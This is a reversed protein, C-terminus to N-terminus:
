LLELRLTAAWTQIAPDVGTDLWESVVVFVPGAEVPGVLGLSPEGCLPVGDCTQRVELHYQPTGDPDNVLSVAMTGGGTVDVQVIFEVASPPSICLAAGFDVPSMAPVPIAVEVFPMMPSLTVTFPGDCTGDGCGADATHVCGTSAECTDLTCPTGDDCDVTAGAVCEGGLCSAGLACAGGDCSAGDALATHACAGDECDDATCPDSDDCNACPDPQFDGDPALRAVRRIADEASWYVWGHDVAIGWGGQQGEALVVLDGGAATAAVITGAGKNIWYVHGGAAAIRWPGGQDVALVSVNSGDHSASLVQGSVDDTWYIRADTVALGVPFDGTAFVTEPPSSGDLASRRVVGQYKDTWYAHTHDVAVIEPWGPLTSLTVVDGGAKSRGAVIGDTQTVWYVHTDSLVVGRPDGATAVFVQSEGGALDVRGIAKGQFDAWYAGDDDVALELPSSAGTALVDVDGGATAVRSVTGDDSDVWYVFDGHVAIGKPDTLGEALTTPACLGDVCASGLCSHSCVGCHDPDTLLDAECAQNDVDKEDLSSDSSSATSDAEPSNESATVTDTDTDAVPGTDTATDAVPGTDTDTVTDTDPVVLQGLRRALQAAHLDAPELDPVHEYWPGLETFTEETGLEGLAVEGVLNSQVYSWLLPPLLPGALGWFTSRAGSFPGACWSGGSSWDTPADIDTFVNEIPSDRHHDLSLSHGDPSTLRKIACGSTHHAVTVAHRMKATLTYDALYCDHCHGLDIGHHGERGLATLAVFSLNKGFTRVSIPTDANVFTVGRVWSGFVGGDLYVGNYGDEELHGKYEVDPFAIRLHEVGVGRVVDPRVIRPTWVLRVDTRLPQVLTIVDGDVAEIRVPWRRKIQAQWDCSGAQDQGAHLHWGLTKEADDALDLRVLDGSALDGVASLTLTQDGRTAEAIVDGISPTKAPGKVHILGGSWSWQPVWGFLDTLSNAFRLVTGDPGDGEGRLVVGDDDMILQGALLYDGAPVLVAGGLEAAAELAAQFAATDDTLGDATAGFDLVNAVVEPEPLDGEGQGVGAWSVDPLRGIPDFLEGAVGWLQSQGAGAPTALAALLLLTVPLAPSKPPQHPPQM